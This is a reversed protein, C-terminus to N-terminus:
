ENDIILKLIQNAQHAACLMVRPAMLGGCSQVDSLGDGCLYYRPLIRRTRISNSNGYGAMGSAGVLYKDPLQELVTNTLMAKEEPVDFAECIYTDEKLIEPINEETLKIWDTYIDLYPNVALLEEKLADPKAMGVQSAAYQQRNLNTVDVCDFDILHLRGVGCRALAFAINSGLGGLGCVAVRARGIKDQVQKTHRLELAQHIEAEAPIRGAGERKRDLDAAKSECSKERKM